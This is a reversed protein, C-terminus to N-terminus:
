FTNQSGCHPCEYEMEGEDNEGHDLDNLETTVIGNCLSCQLASCPLWEGHKELEVEVM